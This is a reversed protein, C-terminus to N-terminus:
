RRQENTTVYNKTVTKKKFQDDIGNHGHVKAAVMEVMEVMEVM